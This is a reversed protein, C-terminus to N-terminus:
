RGEAVRRLFNVIERRRRGAELVEEDLGLQWALDRRGPEADLTKLADAYRAVAAEDEALGQSVLDASQASLAEAIERLTLEPHYQVGWFVGRGSRIEAAEVPTGAAHALCTGGPPLAEVVATHMAPATWAPPRGALLFHVRGAETAAVGRAFGAEMGEARPGTRGGAATAAIQLGACSGFAPTGSAFVCAMFAAAGRTESTEQHMQIPSGAFLIGDYGALADDSPAPSGDVCSLHAIACGPALQRLADAYTEHSALGSRARRADQEAPTESAVVLLSLTM